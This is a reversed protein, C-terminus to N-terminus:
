EGKKEVLGGNNKWGDYCEKTAIIYKEGGSPFKMAQEVIRDNDRLHRLVMIQEMPTFEKDLHSKVFDKKTMWGGNAELVEIVRQIPVALENRGSAVFLKPINPEISAYFGLAGIVNDKTLFYSPTPKNLDLLIAIRLIQEDKTSLFGQMMSDADRKLFWNERYWEYFFKKGEGSPEWQYQHAGKAIQKLHNVMSTRLEAHNSPLYQEPIIREEDGGIEYIFNFRRCIGGSLIRLKLKDMIWDPVECALINLVPLKILQYGHKITSADFVQRDWIDTLFEIMGTPNYSLFNKLENVFFALPTHQCLVGEFNTFTRVSEDKAMVKVIDERSQMAAATPYNPIAEKILERIQDKPYSKRIGQNGVLINALTPYINTPGKKYFYQKSAAIALGSLASWRLFNTPCETGCNYELFWNIFSM